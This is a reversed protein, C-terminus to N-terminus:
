PHMLRYFRNGIASSVTVQNQGNVVEVANSVSVWNTAGLASIQELAFGTSPSPWSVVVTNSEAAAIDLEPVTTVAVNDVLFTTDGGGQIQVDVRNFLRSGSNFTLTGMPFSYGAYAARNTVSGVTSTGGTPTVAFATMIIPTPTPASLPHDTTAFTFSIDTLQSSFQMRLVNGKSFNPYVYKGSFLPLTLQATTDTQISFGGAVARFQATIGGATQGVPLTQYPSLTPTGTDFDFTLTQAAAFPSACLWFGAAVLGGLLNRAPGHSGARFGQRALGCRRPYDQTSMLSM